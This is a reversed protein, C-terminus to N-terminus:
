IQIHIQHGRVPDLRHIGGIAGQDRTVPSPRLDRTEGLPGSDLTELGLYLTGPPPNLNGRELDMSKQYVWGTAKNFFVNM